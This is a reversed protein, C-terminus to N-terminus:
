LGSLRAFVLEQRIHNVFGSYIKEIEPYNGNSPEVSISKYQKRMKHRGIDELRLYNDDHKFKIAKLAEASGRRGWFCYYKGAVEAFGWIKDNNKEPIHCWLFMQINVTTDVM